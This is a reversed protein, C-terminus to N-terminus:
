DRDATKVAVVRSAPLVGAKATGILRNSGDMEVIFKLNLKMPKTVRQTWSLRNGILVPDVFSVAAEDGQKATGIIGGDRTAIHFTVALKGVPTAITAEWVGDFLTGDTSAAAQRPLDEIPVEDDGQSNDVVPDLGKNEWVTGRREFEFLMEIAHAIRPGLKREVIYLSIDLGSTVGGGSVLNGDVVIRANVPIAGTAGLADMGYRNTVAYRGELMGSMALVLSGGCVTVITVDSRDMAEKVFSTLETNAARALIAPVSQDGEGAMNGSAGPVVIIGARSPDLTGSAQLPLGNMGSKVLRPGEATVLEVSCAGGSYMEAACFVEYPGIADMLDFGDFLVIQVHM